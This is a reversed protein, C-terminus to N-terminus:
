KGIMGNAIGLSKEVRHVSGSPEEALSIANIKVRRRLSMEESDSRIKLAPDLNEANVGSNLVAIGVCQCFVCPSIM